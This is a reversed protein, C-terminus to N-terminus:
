QLFWCISEPPWYSKLLPKRLLAHVIRQLDHLMLALRSNGLSADTCESLAAGESDTISKTEGDAVTEPVGIGRDM